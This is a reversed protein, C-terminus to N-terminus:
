PRRLPKYFLYDAEYPVLVGDGVNEPGACGTEPARGGVTNIRQLYSTEVLKRGGGPGKETGVVELLLWAIADPDVFDPDSSERLKKAWVASSDDSHLWTARAAGDQDPNPSLFHTAVQQSRDGFLTAQPGFLTWAVGSEATSSPLCLYNQTGIAHGVFFLRHSSSVELGEPVSPVPHAHLAMPLLVLFAGALARRLSSRTM